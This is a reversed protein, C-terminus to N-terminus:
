VPCPRSRNAVTPLTGRLAPENAVPSRPATEDSALGGVKVEDELSVVLRARPKRLKLQDWTFTTKGLIFVVDGDDRAEVEFILPIDEGKITLVGGVATAITEGRAFDESASGIDEVAFTAFKDDPFMTNRVYGDRFNSDSSLQHLNITFVSPSGDLRVEGRLSTTRM